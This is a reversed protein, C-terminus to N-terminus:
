AQRRASDLAVVFSRKGHEGKGWILALDGDAPM